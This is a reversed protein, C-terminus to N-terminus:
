KLARSFPTKTAGESKRQMKKVDWVLGWSRHALNRGLEALNQELEALNQGLEAM